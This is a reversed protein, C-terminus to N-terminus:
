QSLDKVKEVLDMRRIRWIGIPVMALAIVIVISMLELAVGPVLIVPFYFAWTSFSSAMGVAAEASKM